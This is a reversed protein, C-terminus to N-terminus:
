SATVAGVFATGGAVARVGAFQNGARQRSWRGTSEAFAGAACRAREDIAGGAVRASADVRSDGCCRSDARKFTFEDSEGSEYRVKELDAAEERSKLTDRGRALQEAAAILSTICHPRCRAPSVSSPRRAAM